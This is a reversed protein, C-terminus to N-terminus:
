HLIKKLVDQFDLSKSQNMAKNYYSRLTEPKEGWLQGFVAWVDNVDLRVCVAKAVLARESGSLGQPQWRENLMGEDMLTEMLGRADDSALVEPISCVQPQQDDGMKLTGVKDITLNVVENDHVDVYNGQVYVTNGAM